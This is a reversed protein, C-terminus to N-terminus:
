TSADTPECRQELALRAVRKRVAFWGLVLLAAIVPLGYILIRGTSGNFYSLGLVLLLFGLTVYNTYPAGPLRYKPRSMEGRKAKRYMAVHCILIMSWMGIIGVASFELAIEFASSPVIMNLVVGLAYVGATLLVGGYPVGGRSM